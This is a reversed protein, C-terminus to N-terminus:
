LELHLIFSMNFKDNVFMSIKTYLKLKKKFQKSVKYFASYQKILKTKSLEAFHECDNLWFYMLANLNGTKKVYKNVFKLGSKSVTDFIMESTEFEKQLKQIVNLVEHEKFYEFVGSAVFLTPLTCDMYELLNLKNIDGVIFTENNLKGLIQERKTIVSEFDIQYFHTKSKCNALRYSNTELGCGIFVINTTDYKLTFKKILDDMLISRSASALLTYESSKEAILNKPLSQVIELSKEDYFYEPFMKSIQARAILPIFLTDEVGNFNTDNM